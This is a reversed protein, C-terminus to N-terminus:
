TRESGLRRLQATEIRHGIHGPSNLYASYAPTSIFKKFRTYRLKKLRRRALIRAAKQVAPFRENLPHDIWKDCYLRTLHPLSVPLSSLLPCGHCNLYVLNPLARLTALLPCKICYLIKLESLAPITVLLPCKSCSLQELKPLAPIVALSPCERSQLVQLNPLVPITALSMCGSCYLHTLNSLFPIRTVNPCSYCYIHTAAEMEARRTPDCLICM